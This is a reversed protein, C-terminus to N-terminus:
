DKKKKKKKPEEVKVKKIVYEKLQKAPTFRIKNSAPKAPFTKKEGTFPVVGKRKPLAKKYAIRIRGVDPLKFARNDRLGHRVERTLAEYFARVTKSTQGTEKAITTFLKMRYGGIDGDPFMLIYKERTRPGTVAVAGFHQQLLAVTEEPMHTTFTGRFKEVVAQHLNEKPTSFYDIGLQRYLNAMEVDAHAGGHRLRDLKDTKEERFKRNDALRKQKQEPTENAIHFATRSMKWGLPYNYYGWWNGERLSTLLTLLIV